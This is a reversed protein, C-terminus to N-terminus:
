AFKVQDQKVGDKKVLKMAYLMGTTRKRVMYVTAFGGTGLVKIFDFNRLSPVAKSDREEELESKEVYNVKLLSGIKLFTAVMQHKQTLLFDICEEENYVTSLCM